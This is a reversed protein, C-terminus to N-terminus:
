AAIKGSPKPKQFDMGMGTLEVIKNTLQYFEIPFTEALKVALPMDVVPDVSCAVLQELRKIIDEPVDDSIGIAKRLEDVQISSSSIAKVIADLNKVKSASDFSKAIESATQGRVEWKPVTKEDDNESSFWAKLAPVDVLETRPKFTQRMFANKDFTM